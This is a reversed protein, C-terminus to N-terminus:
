RRMNRISAYYKQPMVFQEPALPNALQSGAKRNQNTPPYVITNEHAKVVVQQLRGTNPSNIHTYDTTGETVVRWYPNLSSLQTNDTRETVAMSSSVVVGKSKLGHSNDTSSQTKDTALEKQNLNPKNAVEEKILIKQEKSTKVLTKLEPSSSVDDKNVKPKATPKTVIAKNASVEPKRVPKSGNAKKNSAKKNKPGKILPKEPHSPMLVDDIRMEKGGVSKDPKKLNLGQPMFDDIFVESDNDASKVPLQGSPADPSTLEDYFEEVDGYSKSRKADEDDYLVDENESPETPNTTKNVESSSPHSQTTKSSSGTSDNPTTTSNIASTIPTSSRAETHMPNISSDRKSSESLESSRDSILRPTRVKLKALKHSAKSSRERLAKLAQEESENFDKPAKLYSKNSSTPAKHNCETTIIQPPKQENLQGIVTVLKSQLKMASAADNSSKQAENVLKIEQLLRRRYYWHTFYGFVAFSLALTALFLFFVVGIWILQSQEIGEFDSGAM